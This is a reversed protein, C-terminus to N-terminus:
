RALDGVPAGGRRGGGTLIDLRNLVASYALCGDLLVRIRVRKVSPSMPVQFRNYRSGFDIAADWQYLMEGTEFERIELSLPLSVACPNFRFAISTDTWQVTEAYVWNAQFLDRLGAGAIEVLPRWKARRDKGVLDLLTDREAPTRCIIRHLGDLPLSEPVLIEARRYGTLENRRATPMPGNSYIDDWRLRSLDTASDGVEVEQWYAATDTFLTGRESLVDPLPFLFFVPVPCHADSQRRQEAPRVGENHYQTPTKPRFYFRASSETLEPSRAIVSTDANEVKMLEYEVALRRSFIRGRDIIGAANRVDTFHYAYKPWWRPIGATSRALLDNRRQLYARIEGADRKEPM